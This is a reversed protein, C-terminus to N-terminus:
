TSVTSEQLELQQKDITVIVSDVAQQEQQGGRHVLLRIESRNLSKESQQKDITVNVRDIGEKDAEL